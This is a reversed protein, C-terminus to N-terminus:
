PSRFFHRPELVDPGCHPPWDKALVQVLRWAPDRFSPKTTSKFTGGAFFGGRYVHDRFLPGLKGSWEKGHKAILARERLPNGDGLQLEILEARPDGKKLVQAYARRPASCDRDRPDTDDCDISLDNHILDFQALARSCAERTRSTDSRCQILRGSSLEDARSNTCRREVRVQAPM